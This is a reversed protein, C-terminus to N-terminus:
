LTPPLPLGTHPASNLSLCAAGQAIRSPAPEQLASSLALFTSEPAATVVEQAARHRLKAMQLTPNPTAGEEGPQQLIPHTIHQSLIM